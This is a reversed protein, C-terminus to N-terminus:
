QHLRHPPMQGALHLLRLLVDGGAGPGGSESRGLQDGDDDGDLCSQDVSCSEADCCVGSAACRGGDPGCTKGGAECPSPLFNEELCRATEPSGVYCGMGEGCCISPGFCRGKAGPGCALCRHPPADLLSRKGGIPCNSIYCAMCISLLSLLCLSVANGSMKDQLLPFPLRRGFLPPTSTKHLLFM